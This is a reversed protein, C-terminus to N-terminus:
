TRTSSRPKTERRHWEHDIGRMLLANDFEISDDPLNDEFYSASVEDVSLPEVRWEDTQLEVGELCAGNPSPSYGVSGCRHYESAESIEDFVSEEPFIDTETASVCVETGGHRSEMELEYEGDSERVDFDATYHRGFFRSGVLSNLRSSTDRRPVYVGQRTEGDDEWEVGVRHAANESAFGVSPPFGRPRVDALRICCVGGVAKGRVTRPRFGDPLLERLPEPDIRFNVLIRRDIVGRLPPVRMCLRLLRTTILAVATIFRFSV